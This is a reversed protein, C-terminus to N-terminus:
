DEAAESQGEEAAISSRKMVPVGGVTMGRATAALQRVGNDVGDLVAPPLGDVYLEIRGDALGPLSRMWRLEIDDFPSPLAVWETTASSGDDSWVRARVDFGEDDRRLSLLYVLEGTSAYGAAVPAEFRGLPELTELDLRFAVRSQDTPNQRGMAKLVIPPVTNSWGATSGDEFGNEFIFDALATIEDSDTSQNNLSFPDSTGMQPTVTATNDCTGSSAAVTCTATYTVSTDVPLDATDSIDGAGSAACGAGAGPVCIWNCQELEPPFVDAVEADVVDSPGHNTVVVTYTTDHTEVIEDRGNSKTVALDAVPELTDTDTASNDVLVPDTTGAPPAVTATNSLSGTAAPDITCTATYTLWGGNPLDVVDNINGTGSSTCAGGGGPACTWTCGTLEAPFTDVVTAGLADHPGHNNTVLITYEVETGPVEVAADDTKHIALDAQGIVSNLDTATNDSPDTDTMGPPATVAVTNSLTGVAAPGVTCTAIYHIEADVPIDPTDVIDGGVPGPTCMGGGLGACTWSCVTLEAPFSDSISSGIADGPGENSAVITYTVEQGVSVTSLGDDKTVFLDVDLSPDFFYAAGVNETGNLKRRNAGAVITEGSITVFEGLSDEMAHDSATLIQRETWVSGTRDFIFVAGENYSPGVDHYRAGAVAVDGDLDVGMAFNDAGTYVSPTLKTQQTWTTGSRHFVYAAGDSNGTFEDNYAGILTTDGSVAVSWGFRDYEDIDSGALKAQETWTTGSRSFVYASGSLTGDPDAYPAGVVITDGAIDVFLGFWDGDTGDSPVLKAQQNWSSGSKVYVYVSGIRDPGTFDKYAGVVATEGDVAVAIGFYEYESSGDAPVIQDQLSWTSGTRVYAYATGADTAGYYYGPSGIIMTDGSLAVQGFGHGENPTVAFFRQELSWTQGAKRYVSVSGSDAFGDHDDSPVGVAVTDGDAALSSGFRDDAAADLPFLKQQETWITPFIRYAIASGVSSGGSHSDLGRGALMTTGSIGVSYGLGDWPAADSPWLRAMQNWGSTPSSEVFCYMTGSHDAGPVSHAPAGVIVWPYDIAVSRGFDDNAAGDSASVKQDQTWSTGSRVFVYASGSFGGNDDDWPAGVVTRPGDIAVSAGFKDDTAGDSATLKAQQSWSTGIRFFVYASGSSAGLPDDLEAGVIATDGDVAISNGLGDALSGDAAILKAQQSWTAGVRVFVYIAGADVGAANDDSPAGVVVTDGDIAASIGFTDGAAPDGATLKAQQSWVGGSRVFVFVAGADDAEDDDFPVGVVLTDGSVGVSWGFLDEADPDDSVLRQQQSWTGGDRFFVFVAGANLQESINRVDARPAAVVGTNADLALRLGAHAGDESFSDFVPLMQATEVLTPGKASSVAITSDLPKETRAEAPGSGVLAFGVILSCSLARGFSTTSHM